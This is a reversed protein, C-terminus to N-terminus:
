DNESGETVGNATILLKLSDGTTPSVPVTTIEFGHLTDGANGSRSVRATVILHEYDSLHTGPVMAQEDSLVFDLPLDAVSKRLAAVPMRQEASEKAFIFITDSSQVQVAVEPALTLRGRIAPAHINEDPRNVSNTASLSAELEAHYQGLSKAREYAINAASSQGLHDYSRALLLWGDADDPNQELRTELGSILSAVTPISTKKGGNDSTDTQGRHPRTADTSIAHPTGLAM